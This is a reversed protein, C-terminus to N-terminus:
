LKEAKRSKLKEGSSLTRRAGVPVSTPWVELEFRITLHKVWRGNWVEIVPATVEPFPDFILDKGDNMQRGIQQAWARPPEDILPARECRLAVQEGRAFEVTLFVPLSREWDQRVEVVWVMVAVALTALTLAADWRPWADSIWRWYGVVLALALIAGAILWAQRPAAFRLTALTTGFNSTAM